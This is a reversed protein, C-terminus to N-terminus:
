LEGALLLAAILGPASQADVNTRIIYGAVTAVCADVKMGGNQTAFTVRDSDYDIEFQLGFFACTLPESANYTFSANRLIDWQAHLTSEAHATASAKADIEARQADTVYRYSPGSPCITREVNNHRIFANRLATRTLRRQGFTAGPNVKKAITDLRCPSRRKKMYAIAVAVGVAIRPDETHNTENM